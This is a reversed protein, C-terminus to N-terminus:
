YNKSERKGWTDTKKHCNICLTRGNDIAFRLEPYDAFPKIHDANLSIHKGRGNKIGCWKCAWNDRKFVAERWLRYELSQRIIKNIKTVGGKWFNHTGNAVRIKSKKSIKERTKESLHKSFFPHKNGKKAESMKRKTVKSIKRGILWQRPDSKKTRKYIGKPM